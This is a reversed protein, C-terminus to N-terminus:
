VSLMVDSLGIVNWVVVILMIGKLIIVSLVVANLTVASFTIARLIIFSLKFHEAYSKIFVSLMVVCLSIGNQMIANLM